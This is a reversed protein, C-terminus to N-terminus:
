RGRDALWLAMWAGAASASATVFTGWAIDALTISWPWGKLTAQNTLDYTAYAVFGLMAGRVLADTVKREAMAPVVAFYVIGGVYIAYFLVAPAFAFGDAMLHGITPRYLRSSMTTLWVVDLALFVLAAVAYAIAIQFVSM